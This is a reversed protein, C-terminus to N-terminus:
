RSPARPSRHAATSSARRAPSRRRRARRPSRSPRPAAAATTTPTAPSPPARTQRDRRQHQQHLRRDPEPRARGRRDRGGLVAHPRQRHLDRQRPLDRDHDLQGQRDHVDRQRLQRLPERRRCLQRQRAATGANTNNSYAVALSQNLGGAGAVAASCPTYASGNYTFPGAGCSVTTTSSAKDITFTEGDSSGNHNADGGYTADANATGANTNNSHVVTVAQFLSGAGSVSATCPTLPSGSYVHPGAPCSVTTTSSAKAITFSKSDSSGTHNTDGAYAYSATATGANTNNSYGPTPTLSLGGAGTVTASCPEMAFRHVHAPWGRVDRDDDIDGPRDHLDDSDGSANHNADGDYAASATAIGADVNDLYDVALEEDLDGAGTVNATCPEQASGNYTHPGAACTVTTTSDAKKIEFTTGGSSGTHNADGLFSANASATGANTNNAYGVTLSQDLGGAGTASATCPEQASGNYTVDLPCSVTTASPAQDINDNVTGSTDNYNGTTDDFTWPDDLYAGANTHTTLSLDLGELAEGKVGTATGTATHPSGTFVVDYGTVDIVADAKDINDVVTATANEYNGTVDTFSWTDTYTGANTHATGSLDLGALDEDAVGKATGTATHPDGDYTVDYPTM